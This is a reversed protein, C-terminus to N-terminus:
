LVDSDLPKRIPMLNLGPNSEHGPDAPLNGVTMQQRATDGENMSAFATTGLHIREHAV